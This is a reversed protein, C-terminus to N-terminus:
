DEEEWLQHDIGVKAKKDILWLDGDHYLFYEKQTLSDKFTTDLMKEWAEWYHEHDPGSILIAKIESVDENPIIREWDLSDAFFEPIYVGRASDAYLIVKNEM